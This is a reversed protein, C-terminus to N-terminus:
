RRCCGRHFTIVLRRTTKGAHVHREAGSAGHLIRAVSIVDGRVVYVVIYPLPSLVLERTGEKQGGTPWPKSLDAARRTRRPDGTSNPLATPRM